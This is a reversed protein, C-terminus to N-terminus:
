NILDARVIAALVLALRHTDRYDGASAESTQGVRIGFESVRVREYKSLASGTQTVANIHKQISPIGRLRSMDFNCQCFELQAQTVGFAFLVEIISKAEDENLAVFWPAKFNIREIWIKTFSGLKAAFEASAHNHRHAAAVGRERETAGRLVGNSRKPDAIMIESNTPEFDDFSTFVVIEQYASIFDHARNKKIGIQPAFEELQKLTLGERMRHCLLRDYTVWIVPSDEGDESYISQSNKKKITSRKISGGLEPINSIKAYHSILTEHINQQEMAPSINNLLDKKMHSISSRVRGLMFAVQEDNLHDSEAVHWTHEALRLDSTHWYTDLLTSVDSHGLLMAVRDIWFPWAHFGGDFCSFFLKENLEGKISQEAHKSLSILRPSEFAFHALRTAATHRMSYPVVDYNGTAKRLVDRVIIDIKITPFLENRLEPDFFIFKRHSPSAIAQATVTSIHKHQQKGYLIAPVLRHSNSYKLDRAINHNVLVGENKGFFIHKAELGFIEKRRLGYDYGICLHSKAHQLLQVNGQILQDISEWAENFQAVTILASRCHTPIRESNWAIRSIPAGITGRLFQHFSALTGKAIPLEDLLRKYREDFDETSFDQPDENWMIKNLRIINSFYTRIAGYRLVDLRKGGEEVLHLIFEFLLAVIPQQNALDRLESPVDHNLTNKLEKRQTRSIAGLKEFKGKSKNLMKNFEDIAALSNIDKNIEKPLSVAEPQKSDDFYSIGFIACESQIDAAPGSNKGCAIAFLAGPLRVQWWARFTIILNEFSQVDEDLKWPAERLKKLILKTVDKTFSDAPKFTNFKQKHGIILAATHPSLVLSKDFVKSAKEIRTHVILCGHASRTEHNAISLLISKWNDIDLVADFIILSIGIEALRYLQGDQTSIKHSGVQRLWWFRIVNAVAFNRSSTIEIPSAETRTMNAVTSSVTRLRRRLREIEMALAQNIKQMAPKDHKLNEHAIAKLMRVDDDTISAKENSFWDEPLNSRVIRKAFALAQNRSRTRGEYSEDSADLLPAEYYGLKTNQRSSRKTWVKVPIWGRSSLYKALKPRVQEGWGMISWASSEGFAHLEGNHGLFAEVQYGSLGDSWLADAVSKRFASISKSSVTEYSKSLKSTTLTTVIHGSSISFFMGFFSSTESSGVNEQPTWEISRLDGGGAMHRIKKSLQPSDFAIHDSFDLLHKHYEKVQETVWSPLPVYRAESGVVAKDCIFALKENTLVDWPFFFPTRSKRHGTAVILLMLCYRAFWNHYEIHNGAEKCAEIKSRLYESIQRHELASVALKSDQLPNKRHNLKRAGDGYKGFIRKCADAYEDANRENLPNIYYSLSEQKRWITNQTTALQALLSSSASGQYLSRALSDRIKRRTKYKSGVLQRGLWNYCREEWPILSYPLCNEITKAGSCYFVNQLIVSLFEPLAINLIEGSNNGRVWLAYKYEGKIGQYPLPKFRIHEGSESILPFKLADEICRGTSIALASIAAEMCFPATASTDHYKDNAAELTEIILSSLDKLESELFANHHSSLRERENLGVGRQSPLDILEKNAEQSDDPSVKSIGGYIGDDIKRIVMCAEAFASQMNEISPASFSLPDSAESIWRAASEIWAEIDGGQLSTHSIEGVSPEENIYLYISTVLARSTKLLDGLNRSVDVGPLATVSTHILWFFALIEGIAKHRSFDIPTCAVLILYDAIIASCFLDASGKPLVEISYSNDEIQSSDFRDLIAKSLQFDGLIKEASPFIEALKNFHNALAASTALARRYRPVTARYGLVRMGCTIQDPTLSDTALQGAIHRLASVLSTNQKM